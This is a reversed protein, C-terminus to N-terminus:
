GRPFKISKCRAKPNRRTKIWAKSKPAVLSRIHEETVADPRAIAILRYGNSDCWQEAASDGIRANVEGSGADDQDPLKGQYAFALKRSPVLFDLRSSTGAPWNPELWSLVEDPQYISRLLQGLKKVLQHQRTEAFAVSWNHYNNLREQNEDYGISTEYLPVLEVTRPQNPGYWDIAKTVFPAPVIRDSLWKAARDDMKDMSNLLLQLVGAVQDTHADLLGGQSRYQLTDTPQLSFSYWKLQLEEVCEPSKLDIDTEHYLAYASQRRPRDAVPHVTLDIIASKMSIVDAPLVCLLGSRRVEGWSAFYAAVDLSSTMDFLNTPAGYHQLFGASWMPNWEMWKQLELHLLTTVGEIADRVSLSISVDTWLRHLSSTTTPYAYSEGRYLYAPADVTIPEGSQVDKGSSIHITKNPPYRSNIHDFCERLSDFHRIVQTFEKANLTDGEM